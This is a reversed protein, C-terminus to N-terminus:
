RRDEEDVVMWDGDFTSKHSRRPSDGSAGNGSATTQKGARRRRVGGRPSDANEFQEGHATNGEDPGRHDGTNDTSDPKIHTSERPSPSSSKRWPKEREYDRGHARGRETDVRTCVGIPTQVSYGLLLLLSSLLQRLKQQFPRWWVAPLSLECHSRDQSASEPEYADHEDAFGTTRGDTPPAGRSEENEREGDADIGHRATPGRVRETQEPATSRSPQRGVSGGVTRRVYEIVPNGPFCGLAALEFLTTLVAAAIAFLLFVGTVVRVLQSATLALVIPTLNHHMLGGVTGQTFYYDGVVSHMAAGAICLLVAACLLALFGSVIKAVRWRTSSSFSCTTAHSSMGSYGCAVDRERVADVAGSADNTSAVDESLRSCSAKVPSVSSRSNSGNTGTDSVERQGSRGALPRDGAM